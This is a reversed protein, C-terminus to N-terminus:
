NAIDNSDLAHCYSGRRSGGEKSRECKPLCCLISPNGKRQCIAQMMIIGVKFNSSQYSVTNTIGMLFDPSCPGSSWIVTM